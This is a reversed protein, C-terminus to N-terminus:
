EGVSIKITVHAFVDKWTVNEAEDPKTRYLVKGIGVGDASFFQMTNVTHEATTKIDDFVLDKVSSYEDENM